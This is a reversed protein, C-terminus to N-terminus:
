NTSHRIHLVRDIIGMVKMLPHVLQPRTVTDELDGVHHKNSDRMTEATSFDLYVFYNQKQKAVTQMLIILFSLLM